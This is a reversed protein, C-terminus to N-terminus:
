PWPHTLSRRIAWASALMPIGAVALVMAFRQWSELTVPIFWEQEIARISALYSLYLSIAALVILGLLIAVAVTTLQPWYRVSMGIALGAIVFVLFVAFTILLTWLLSTTQIGADDLVYPDGNTDIHEVPGSTNLFWDYYAYYPSNRQMLVGAATAIVAMVASWLVSMGLADKIWSRAPVDLGHLASWHRGAVVFVLGSFLVAYWTWLGGDLAFFRGLGLPIAAILFYLVWEMKVPRLFTTFM